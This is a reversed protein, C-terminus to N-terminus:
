VSLKKIITNLIKMIEELDKNLLIYDDDNIYGVKNAIIIQTELEAGSGYSIRLFSIYDKNTGRKSGEAINSSISVASRRIQSQLGFKEEHPFNKSVEYIKVCFDVSKQWVLLEKYPIM